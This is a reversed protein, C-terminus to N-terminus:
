PSQAASTAQRAVWANVMAIRQAITPHNEFLVYEPLSPDPEELSTRTFEQMLGRQAAPDRAAQLAMWDAEAELHRTVVNQLPLALLGLAIFLFLGLPVAEPRAMGGRRRTLRAILFAGPLAFIAYWGVLKWIHSRSLHGLEHALVVRIQRDSFRGDLLTNWLVVRRSPGMGTAEANPASTVSSVDQVDIPTPAVGERRELERAAAVLQPDRLRHLNPILYPQVFAFLLALGVFFPGGLMWWRDGLPRALAMVILLALCIFLFEGALGLWNDIVYAVYGVEGVGHRREWWLQAVGFPIQAFWTFALGIMGLLMGTGVRGAASERMWRAGWRAYAALVILVAVLSLVADWFTFRGFSEARHIVHQAFYRHQDVGSVHLDGPVVSSTWLLVAGAALV